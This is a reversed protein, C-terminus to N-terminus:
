NRWNRAHPWRSYTELKIQRFIGHQLSDDWPLTSVFLEDGSGVVLSGLRETLGDDSNQCSIYVVLGDFYFRIISESRKSEDGVAPMTKAWNIPTHNHIIGRTSLQIVQAPYFSLPEPQRNLVMLRLKELDDPPLVIHSFERLRTAAARWLLSLFFLRLRTPHVAKIKRLGWTTGSIPLHDDCPITQSQAWSHWILKLKRLEIIAATDYASLVDEGAQTVLRQDYWSSWRKSPRHEMHGQVM